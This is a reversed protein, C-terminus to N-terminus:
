SLVQELIKKKSQTHMYMGEASVFVDEGLSLASLIKAYGSGVYKEYMEWLDKAKFKSIEELTIM